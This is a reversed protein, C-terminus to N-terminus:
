APYHYIRNRARFCKVHTKTDKLDFSRKPQANANMINSIIDIFVILQKIDTNLYAWIPLLKRGVNKYRYCTGKTYM